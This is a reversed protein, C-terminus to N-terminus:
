RLYSLQQHRKRQVPAWGHRVRVMSQQETCLCSGRRTASRLVAHLAQQRGHLAAFVSQTTSRYTAMRLASFLVPRGMRNESQSHPTASGQSQAGLARLGDEHTACACSLTCAVRM